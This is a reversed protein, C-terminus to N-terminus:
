GTLVVTWTASQGAKPDRVMLVKQGVGLTHTTLNYYHEWKKGVGANYSDRVGNIYFELDSGGAGHMVVAGERVTGGDPINSGSLYGVVKNISLLANMVTFVRVASEPNSGYLGKARLSYAKVRLSLPLAWTDGIATVTGLVTDEDLIQVQQGAAATGALTVRTSLTTSNPPIEMGAADQIHSIVPATTAAVTFSWADSELQGGVTKATISHHTETLGSLTLRWSGERQVVITEVPYSDDFVDLTVGLGATGSLTLLNDPTVGGSEVDGEAGTVKLIVPKVEADVAEVTLDLAISPQTAGSRIVTYVVEITRGVAEAVAANPVIFDVTGNSNGRKPALLDVRGDWSLLILDTDLMEYTVRVTAGDGANSPDLVGDPAEVVLPEPYCLDIEVTLDLAISPEASGSRLVTYIVAIIKGRADNVAATPVLFELTGDPNGLKPALLDVRGDWSLFILDTDLMVYTVRVTAGNVADEPKLVGSPAEVVLPPPYSANM